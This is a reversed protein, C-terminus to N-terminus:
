LAAVGESGDKDRPRLTDFFLLIWPLTVMTGNKSLRATKVELYKCAIAKHIKADERPDIKCFLFPICLRHYTNTRADYLQHVVLCLAM